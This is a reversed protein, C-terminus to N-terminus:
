KIVIDVLKGFLIKNIGKNIPILFKYNKRNADTIRLYSSSDFNNAYDAFIPYAREGNAFYGVLNAEAKRGYFNIIFKKGRYKHSFKACFPIDLCDKNLREIDDKSEKYFNYENIKM